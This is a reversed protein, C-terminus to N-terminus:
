KGAGSAAQDDSMRNPSVPPYKSNLVGVQPLSEGSTSEPTQLQEIMKLFRQDLRSDCPLFEFGAGKGPRIDMVKALATLKRGFATFRVEVEALRPLNLHARTEIYCGSQSIDKLKGRFVVSARIAVVEAFGECPFRRHRRRESGVQEDQNAM